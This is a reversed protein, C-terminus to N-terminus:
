GPETVTWVQADADAHIHIEPGPGIKNEARFRRDIANLGADLAQKIGIMAKLAVADAASMPLVRKTMAAPKLPRIKSM